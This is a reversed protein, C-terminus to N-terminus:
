CMGGIPPAVPAIRPNGGFAAADAPPMAPADPEMDGSNADFGGADGGGRAGSNGFVGAGIEL